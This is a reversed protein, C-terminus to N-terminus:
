MDIEELYSYNDHEKVEIINKFADHNQKDHSIVFISTDQKLSNLIQRLSIIGSDDLSGDFVEDLFLLNVDTTSRMKALSRFALLISLDIRAKQGESFSNYVFNERGRSKVTENFNEDLEYVVFLEMIDLYTNILKNLIPIYQKIISSKIGNDKLITACVDFYKREELLDNDLKEYEALEDKYKTLIDKEKDFDVQLSKLENLQRNLTKLTRLRSDKENSLNDISEITKRINNEISENISEIDSIASEVKSIEDNLEILDNHYSALVKSNETIYKKRFGEDIDQTCTPCENTSEFWKVDKDIQKTDREITRRIDLLESLINKKEKADILEKGRSVVENNLPKIDSDIKNIENEINEIDTELNMILGENNKNLSEIHREQASIKEKVVLLKTNVDSKEEKNKSIDSKLLINMKGFVTIDLLDEIVERRHAATLKMFPTYTAKGVISIQTFSKYNSRIINSELYDQYDRSSADQNIMEGNEYIEFKNPKLGRVVLYKKNRIEFELQVECNKKNLSNLILPRNIDRFTKNFLAFCIADIVVSKGVGNKGIILTPENRDLDIELFNNGANFFNKWRVKKLVLM